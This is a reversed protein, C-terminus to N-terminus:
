QLAKIEVEVAQKLELASTALQKSFIAKERWYKAYRSFTNVILPDAALAKPDYEISSSTSIDRNIYKIHPDIFGTENVKGIIEDYIKSVSQYYSLFEALEKRLKSNYILELDGASKMEEYSIIEPQFPNFQYFTNLMRDLVMMSSDSINGSELIELSSTIRSYIEAAREADSETMTQIQELDEALRQHYEISRQQNLRDENWNNVQLALLIGIMVLAIEGIAYFFYSRVKNQEM